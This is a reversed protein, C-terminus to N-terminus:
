LPAEPQPAGSGGPESQVPGSRPVLALPHPSVLESPRVAM